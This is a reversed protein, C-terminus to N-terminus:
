KLENLTVELTKTRQSGDAESIKFILVAYTRKFNKCENTSFDHQLLCDFGVLKKLRISDFFSKM